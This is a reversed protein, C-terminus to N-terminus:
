DDAGKPELHKARKIRRPGKSPEVVVPDGWASADNVDAFVLENMQGDTLQQTDGKTMAVM